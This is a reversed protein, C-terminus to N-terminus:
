ITAQCKRCIREKKTQKDKAVRYGIRTKKGCHSCIIQVNAINIPAPFEVLGGKPNKRNPRTAKKTLNVNEVIVREDDKLVHLVKGTKGRDKGKIIVVKDNRKIKM